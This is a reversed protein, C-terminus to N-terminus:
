RLDIKIVRSKNKLVGKFLDCVDGESFINILNDIDKINLKVGDIEVEGVWKLYSGNQPIDWKNQSVVKRGGSDNDPIAIVRRFLGYLVSKVSNNNFLGMQAVANFGVSRIALSDFVGEVLFYDKGVGTRGIQELGFFLCDKSFFRSPTTIYRKSDPYWGILAVINGLMDRVPIIYRENLLFNGKESFLALDKFNEKNFRSYDCTDSSVYVVEVERLIKGWRAEENYYKRLSCIESVITDIDKSCSKLYRWVADFKFCYEKYENSLM